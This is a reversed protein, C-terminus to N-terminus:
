KSRLERARQLVAAHEEKKRRLNEINRIPFTMRRNDKLREYNRDLFDWYLTSFPCADDGTKKKYDYRCGQCFNSMKHIYNGTSCYPKTGVIGGDGYQSMGLTNPLSVWDVADVYMAMHWAHFKRPHVGYMLAYNGLIMLRQIHHAYGYDLVNKMTQRVCNMDTEGDWFFSPLEEQQDLHNMEAYEPMHLFYVGRIFERWGLIQRVFGEVSNLPADGREYADVAAQICERPDLLKVNLLASLRSHYLFPEESWMADEYTGFLPLLHKIFHTLMRRANSRTVPLQFPALNGPHDAFRSEILEAVEQTLDDQSFSMPRSKEPPGAKPISKRNDHDYNWEGGAPTKEDEMLIEHRKRMERYFYELMLTKRDAAYEAFQNLSCFFHRDERIELTIGEASALEEFERQVRDDGPETMILKAPSFRKLDRKLIETFSRGRDNKPDTSLRHYHVTWGSETLEQQFHRMCSLFFLIRQQHSRVYSIEEDVEAMWVSDQEPDADEFASSQPDLQDGLVLILNRM